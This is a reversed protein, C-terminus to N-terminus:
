MERKKGKQRGKTLECWTDIEQQPPSVQAHREQVRCVLRSSYESLINKQKTKKKELNCSELTSIVAALSNLIFGLHLCVLSDTSAILIESDCNGLGLHKSM